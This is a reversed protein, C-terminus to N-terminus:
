KAPMVKGPLSLDGSAVKFVNDVCLLPAHLNGNVKLGATVGDYSAGAIGGILSVPIEVDVTKARSARRTTPATM